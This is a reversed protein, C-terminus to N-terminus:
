IDEKGLASIKDLRRKHREENPFDTRLWELAIAASDEFSIFRSALVLVNSDNHERSLRAIERNCCLAARVGPFRNATISM